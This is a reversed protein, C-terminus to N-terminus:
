ATALPDPHHGPTVVDFSSKDKASPSVISIHAFVSAVPVGEHLRSLKAAFYQIFRSM